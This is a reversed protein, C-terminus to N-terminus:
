AADQKRRDVFEFITELEEFPAYATLQGLTFRISEDEEITLKQGTLWSEMGVKFEARPFSMADHGHRPDDKTLRCFQDWLASNHRIDPLDDHRLGPNLMLQLDPEDSYNKLAFIHLEFTATSTRKGPRHKVSCDGVFFFRSGPKLKISDPREIESHNISHRIM